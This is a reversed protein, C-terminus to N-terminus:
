HPESGFNTVHEVVLDTVWIPPGEWPVLILRQHRDHKPIGMDCWQIRSYVRYAYDGHRKGARQVLCQGPELAGPHRHLYEVLMGGATDHAAAPLLALAFALAALIKM